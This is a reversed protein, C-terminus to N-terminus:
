GNANTEIVPDEFALVSRGLRGVLRLRRQGEPCGQTVGGEVRWKLSM